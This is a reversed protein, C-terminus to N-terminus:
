RACAREIEQTLFAFDIPKGVAGAVHLRATRPDHDYATMLLVPVDAFHPSKLQKRRFTWGDMVPMSLDLLILCPHHGDLWELAEQGNRKAEVTYGQFKLFSEVMERTEDHDEVLLVPESPPPAKM